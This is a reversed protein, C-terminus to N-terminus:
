DKGTRAIQLATEFEAVTTPREPEADSEPVPSKKAVVHAPTTTPTSIPKHFLLRGTLLGAGFLIVAGLSFIIITRLRM